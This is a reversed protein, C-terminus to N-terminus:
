YSPLEGIAQSQMEEEQLRTRFDKLRSQLGTIMKMKRVCIEDLRTCYSDIDYDIVDDGQITGLLGGEETLMQANEKLVEVHHNLLTEEEEYM